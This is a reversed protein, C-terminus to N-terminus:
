QVANDNRPLTKKTTKKQQETKTNYEAEYTGISTGKIPLCPTRYPMSGM